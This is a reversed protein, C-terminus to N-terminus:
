HEDGDSTNSTAAPALFDDSTVVARIEDVTMRKAQVQVAVNSTAEKNDLRAISDTNRLLEAMNKAESITMPDPRESVFKITRAIQDIGAKAINALTLKRSSVIESQVEEDLREREELWGDRSRWQSLTATPVKLQKSIENMPVHNIYLSKAQERVEDPYPVLKASM